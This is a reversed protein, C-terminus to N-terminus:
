VQILCVSDPCCCSVTLYSPFDLKILEANGFNIMIILTVLLRVFILNMISIIWLVSIGFVYILAIRSYINTVFLYFTNFNEMFLLRIFFYLRSFTITSGM